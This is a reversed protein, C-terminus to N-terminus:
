EFESVTTYQVFAKVLADLGIRSFSSIGIIHEEPYKEKLLELNEEAEDLDLKTGIILKSKTLLEPSFAELEKRLIEVADLCAPDGMDIMLIILFTRSIHKLFRIGLGAGQSAGQIIGPIDALIIDRDYVRLVGLNPIKTTFPYPAVQPHANTITKLLTSKGANPLGVFGIDAILNLELQIKREVGEIGPQAYRPAQRRATAFNMNGRGGKGGRLFVWEEGDTNLDKIIEGTYFDKVYTGPPVEIVADDGNKGHMKRGMGPLGNKARFVHKRKVQFLTKLNRRVKFVVNGGEGGDGGDPGGKPVYKERRFSVCGSGGNGSFVEIVAEDVFGTM